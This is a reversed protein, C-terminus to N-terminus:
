ELYGRLSCKNRSNLLPKGEQDLITFSYRRNKPAYFVIEVADKGILGQYLPVGNIETDDTVVFYYASERYSLPLSFSHRNFKMIRYADVSYSKPFIVAMDVTSDSFHRGSRRDVLVSPEAIRFTNVLYCYDGNQVNTSHPVYQNCKVSLVDRNFAKKLLYGLKNDTNEEINGYGGFVVLKNQLLDAAGLSKVINDCMAKYRDEGNKESYDYSILTFGLKCAERMVEAFVPENTYAGTVGYIPYKRINISSDKKSLDELALYKYGYKRLDKLLSYLFVRPYHYHHIDNLLLITFSKSLRLIESRANIRKFKKSNYIGTDLTNLSYSDTGVYNLDVVRQAEDYNCLYSQVTAYMFRYFEPNEAMYVTSDKKLLMYRDLANGKAIRFQFISQSFVSSCILTLPLILLIKIRMTDANESYVFCGM